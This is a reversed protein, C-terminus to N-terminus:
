APVEVAQRRRRSGAHQHHQVAIGLRFLSGASEAGVDDQVAGHRWRVKQRADFV